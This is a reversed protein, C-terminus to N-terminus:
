PFTVEFHQGIQRIFGPSEMGFDYGRARLISANHKAISSAFEAEQMTNYTIWHVLCGNRSSVGKPEQKLSSFM